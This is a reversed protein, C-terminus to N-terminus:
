KYLKFKRNFYKEPYLGTLIRDGYKYQIIYDSKTIKVRELVNGCTINKYPTNDSDFGDELGSRYKEAEIIQKTKKHQYLKM